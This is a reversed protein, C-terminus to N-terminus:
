QKQNLRILLKIFDVLLNTMDLLLEVSRNITDLTRNNFDDIAKHTDYVILGTFIGVSAMASIIDLTEAFKIFGFYGAGLVVLNTGILGCVGGMLPAGIKLMDLNSQKLAFYTAGGFTAITSTLAIPLITPNVLFSVFVIPTLMIGNSITFMTYYKKKEIPIDETLDTKTISYINNMKYLSYFSTGIGGIWVVPVIELIPIYPIIASSAISVGLTTGFGTGTYKYVDTIYKRLKENQNITNIHTNEDMKQIKYIKNENNTTHIKRVSCIPKIHISVKKINRILNTINNLKFM